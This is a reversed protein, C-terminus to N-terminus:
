EIIVIGNQGELAGLFDARITSDNEKKLPVECGFLDLYYLSNWIKEYREIMHFYLLESPTYEWPKKDTLVPFNAPEFLNFFDDKNNWIYEQIEKESLM